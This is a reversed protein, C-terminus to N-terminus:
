FKRWECLRPEPDKERIFSILIAAGFWGKVPPNEPFGGISTYVRVEMWRFPRSKLTVPTTVQAMGILIGPALEM